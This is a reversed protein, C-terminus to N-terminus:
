SKHILQLAIKKLVIRTESAQSLLNRLNLMIKKLLYTTTVRVHCESQRVQTQSDGMHSPKTSLSRALSFSLLTLVSQAGFPSKFTTPEMPHNNLRKVVM